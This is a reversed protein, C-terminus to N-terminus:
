VNSEMITLPNGASSSFGQWACQCEGGMILTGGAVIQFCGALASLSPNLPAGSAVTTPAVYVNAAGPNTFLLSQRGGNVALIPATTTGLTIPTIRSGSATAFALVGGPHAGIMGM